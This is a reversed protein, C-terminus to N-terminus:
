LKIIKFGRPIHKKYDFDETTTVITQQNHIINFVLDRHEKDLESFIDDLLLIPKIGLKQEIFSLEALKLWLVGLRQEGRSGYKSLDRNEKKGNQIRSGSNQISIVFDDRHPGVLTNGAFVEENQYQKLRAESIESKDYYAHFNINFKPLQLKSNAHNIIGSEQNKNIIEIFEERKATIIQGNNILIEGWYNIQEDLSGSFDGNLKEDFVLERKDRLLKNRITLAKEYTLLSRRYERDVLLLVNNLYTRRLSPSGVILDLDQPWFLVAPLYGIFDLLRRGINNVLRKKTGVKRGLVQGTTLVVELTKVDGNLHAKIHSAEKGYSIMERDNEARFSRGSALLYVAELLNTKGIANPGVIVTVTSSFDFVASKYNRFNTLHIKQLLM